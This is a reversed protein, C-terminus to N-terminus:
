ECECERVSVSVSVCLGLSTGIGTLVFMTAFASLVGGACCLDFMGEEIGKHRAM